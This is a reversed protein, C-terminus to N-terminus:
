YAKWASLLVWGGCRAGAGVQLVLAGSAVLPHDHLDTGPPFALLDPLLPDVAALQGQLFVAPSAFSVHLLCTPLQLQPGLMGGQEGLLGKLLVM